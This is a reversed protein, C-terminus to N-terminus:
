SGRCNRLFNCFKLLKNMQLKPFKNKKKKKKELVVSGTEVMYDHAQCDTSFVFVLSFLFALLLLISVVWLQRRFCTQRNLFIASLVPTPGIELKLPCHQTTGV